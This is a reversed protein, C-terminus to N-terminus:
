ECRGPHPGNGTRLTNCYMQADPDALQLGVLEGPVGHLEIITGTTGGRSTDYHYGSIRRGKSTVCWIPHRETGNAFLVLVLDGKVLRKDSWRVIGPIWTDGLTWSEGGRGSLFDLYSHVHKRRSGALMCRHIEEYGEAIFQLPRYNLRVYTDWLDKVAQVAPMAGRAWEEALALTNRTQQSPSLYTKPM